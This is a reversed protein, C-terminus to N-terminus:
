ENQLPIREHLHNLLRFLTGPGTTWLMTLKVLENTILIDVTRTLLIDLECTKQQFIHTAKANAFAAWMKEAFINAHLTDM